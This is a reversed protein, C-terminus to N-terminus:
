QSEVKSESEPKSEASAEAPASPGPTSITADGATDKTDASSEDEKPAEVPPEPAGPNEAKESGVSPTEGLQDDGAEQVSSEQVVTQDPDQADAADPEAKEEHSESAEQPPSIPVVSEEEEVMMPVDAVEPEESLPDPGSIRMEKVRQAM